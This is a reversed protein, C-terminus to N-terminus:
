HHAGSHMDEEHSPAPLGAGLRREIVRDLDALLVNGKQRILVHGEADKEEYLGRSGVYHLQYGKTSYTIEIDLELRDGRLYVMRIKGPMTQCLIRWHLREAVEVIAERVEAEDTHGEITRAKPLNLPVNKTAGMSIAAASVTTTSLVQWACIGLLALARRRVLSYPAM